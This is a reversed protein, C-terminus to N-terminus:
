EASTSAGPAGRKRAGINCETQYWIVLTNCSLNLLAPGGNVPQFKTDFEIIYLTQRPPSRRSSLLKPHIPLAQSWILAM